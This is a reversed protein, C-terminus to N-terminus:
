DNRVHTLWGHRDEVRGNVLDFYAAQLRMTVPGPKGDAVPTRDVSRVPTVEAATGTFFVEDSTYLM